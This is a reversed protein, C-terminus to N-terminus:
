DAMTKVLKNFLGLMLFTPAWEGVFMADHHRKALKLALSGAISLGAAWFFLDSSIRSSREEIARTLPGEVNASRSKVSIM